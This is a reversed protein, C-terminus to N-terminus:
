NLFEWFIGFRIHLGPLLYSNNFNNNNVFNLNFGNTTNLRIANINEARIYSSFGRIKFNLYAAIDPLNNIVPATNDWVFQGGVPSYTQSKFPTFYKIEIGSSLTLKKVQTEYAIRNRLFAAPLYLNANGVRQQLALQSYLNIKRYLKLKKELIIQTVTFLDTQKATKFDSFYMLSNVTYIHAAASLKLPKNDFEFAAHLINQKNWNTTNNRNYSSNNYFIYAPKKNINEVLIEFSGIKKNVLSKLKIAWEYDGANFGIFYIQAHADIDYKKNKSINRYQGHAFTNTLTKTTTTLKGLSSSDFTGWLNQLTIGLQLFQQTNKKDPFTYISFDNELNQWSDRLYFGGTRSRRNVNIAYNNKYYASDVDTDIFLYKNNDYSISHELRLKPYFIKYNISDTTISDKKGIDYHQRIITTAETYKNGATIPTGFLSKSSLLSDGIYVPINRRDFFTPDTLTNTGPRIGGNEGSQLRNGIIAAQLAYRKNNSNYNTVVRYNNNNTQQNKFQGLSNVVRFQVVINLNPKVNQTHLVNIFQEVNSGLLYDFRTYPKSTQYLQTNNITFKYIDFAHFGNDFGSKMTPSFIINQTANGFNGLIRHSAPLPIKANFDAITNDLSYVKADNFLKYSIKISDEYKDRKELTDKPKNNGNNGFKGGFNQINNAANGIAAGESVPTITPRPRQAFAHTTILICLVLSTVLKM